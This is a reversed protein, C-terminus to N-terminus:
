FYINDADQFSTKSWGQETYTFMDGVQPQAEDPFPPRGRTIVGSLTPQKTPAIAEVSFTVGKWYNEGGIEVAGDRINSIDGLVTVTSENYPMVFTHGSIPENIAEYLAYYEGMTQPNPALKITYVLYTGTIDNFKRGNLMWGSIDSVRMESARSIDCPVSWAIGDMIFQM